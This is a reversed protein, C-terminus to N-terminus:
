GGANKDRIDDMKYFATEIRSDAQGSLAKALIADIEGKLARAEENNRDARLAKQCAALAAQARGASLLDRATKLAAAIVDGRADQSSTSLPPTPVAAPSAPPPPPAIPTAVPISPTPDTRAPEPPPAPPHASALSSAQRALAAVQPDAAAAGGLPALADIAARADGRGIAARATEIAASLAGRDRIATALVTAARPDDGLLRRVTEALREAHGPRKAALFREADACFSVAIEAVRGAREAIEALGPEGPFERALTAALRGADGFAGEAMKRLALSLGEDLARERETLRALLAETDPDGPLVALADMIPARAGALDSKALAEAARERLRTLQALIGSLRTAAQQAAEDSPIVRLAAKWAELAEPLHREAELRVAKERSAAHEALCRGAEEVIRLAEANTADVALARRAAEQADALDGAKFLIRAEDLVAAIGTDKSGERARKLLDAVPEYGPFKEAAEEALPLARACDGAALIAQIRTVADERESIAQETRRLGEVVQSNEPSVDRAAKYRAVAEAYRGSAVYSQAEQVIGAVERERALNAGCNGCFKAGIFDPTSCVPCPLLLSTSCEACKDAGLDNGVGCSPCFVKDETSEDGRLARLARLVEECSAYRDELRRAMMKLVVAALPETVSKNHVTPTVPETRMVNLLVEAPTRGEFPRKLTLLYYFTVGLSYIDTRGDRAKGEFQEPPMFYPTGIITSDKDSPDYVKALGFDTIKVVGKGTIMINGPKIDRHIINKQHAAALGNASQTVVEIARDVPFAGEQAMIESLTRGEVFEMALFHQQLERCFGVHHIKVINPHSLKAATRAERLFKEVFEPKTTKERLMLKIAVRRRLSLDIAEYVSGYGGQGLLRVLEFEGNVRTGILPDKGAPAPSPVAPGAPAGPRAGPSTPLGPGPGPPKTASTLGVAAGSTDVAGTRDPIRLINRCSGCRIRAGPRFNTVDFRAKCHPCAVIVRSTSKDGVM